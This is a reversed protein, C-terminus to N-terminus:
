LKCSLDVVCYNESGFGERNDVHCRNDIIRAMASVDHPFTKASTLIEGSPEV